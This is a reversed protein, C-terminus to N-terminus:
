KGYLPSNPHHRVPLEESLRKKLTECLPLINQTHFGHAAVLFEELTRLAALDFNIFPTRSGRTTPLRVHDRHLPKVRQIFDCVVLRGHYACYDLIVVDIGLSALAAYNDYAEAEMQGIDRWDLDSRDSKQRITAIRTKSYLPTQTCKYELLYVRDPNGRDVVFFDPAFKIHRATKTHVYRILDHVQRPIYKEAGYDVHVVRETVLPQQWLGEALTGIVKQTQEIRDEFQTM